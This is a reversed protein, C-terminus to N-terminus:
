ESKKLEKQLNKFCDKCIWVTKNNIEECYYTKRCDQKCFCCERIEDKKRAGIKVIKKRDIINSLM